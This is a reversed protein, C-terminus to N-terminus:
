PQPWVFIEEYGPPPLYHTHLKGQAVLIYPAPPLAHFHEWYAVQWYHALFLKRAYREARLELRGAPLQGAEYIARTEKDKIQRELLTQAALASFAGAGNRAVEQAKRAAYIHGYVCREHNHFKMFSDGIKWVLVKLNANYPRKQGKAWTITPDQGAFRWLASISPTKTIDIHAALGAALVPGIGVQSKAWVSVPSQNSAIDLAGAALKEMRLLFRGLFSVFANPEQGMARRQNMSAKRAEQILYYLDVVIRQQEPSLLRAADRLDRTLRLAAIYDTTTDDGQADSWTDLLTGCLVLLRDRALAEQAPLTACLADACSELERVAQTFRIPITFADFDVPM